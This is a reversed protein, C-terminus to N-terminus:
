YEIQMGSKTCSLISSDTIGLCSHLPCLLNHLFIRCYRCSGNVQILRIKIDVTLQTPDLKVPTHKFLGLITTMRQQFAHLEKGDKLGIKVLEQHNAQGPQFILYSSMYRMGARIAEVCLLLQASHALVQGRELLLHALAPAIVKHWQKFGLMDMNKIIFLKIGFLASRHSGIKLLLNKWDQGRQSNIWPMRERM